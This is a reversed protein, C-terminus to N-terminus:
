AKLETKDEGFNCKGCLNLGGSLTEGVPSWRSGKNATNTETVLEELAQLPKGEFRSPMNEATEENATYVEHVNLTMENFPGTVTAIVGGGGGKPPYAPGDQETAGGVTVSMSAGCVFKVVETGSEPTWDIGVEKPATKKIYGLTGKLPNTTFRGEEGFAFQGCPMGLTECKGFNERFHDIEKASKSSFEGQDGFLVKCEVTVPVREETEGERCKALREESPMCKAIIAHLTLPGEEANGSSHVARHEPAFATAKTFEFEGTFKEAIRKSKQTCNGDTYKGEHTPSTECRGWEPLASANTALGAAVILGAALAPGLVRM